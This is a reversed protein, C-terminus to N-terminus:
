AMGAITSTVEPDAFVVVRDGPRFTTDGRPVLLDRDRIVAGVVLDGDVRRDLERLSQGVLESEEDLEIEIVEARDRELTSLKELPREFGFRVIEEALEERPNVAVDIGIAEFVDIYEPRDVVAIVRDIGLRKALVSVLLNREDTEQAAVAVAAEDIHERELFEADSADHEMVLTDPLQEALERARAPNQEVLTGGLGREELLRATHYGIDTGGFIVIDDDPDPTAGADLAVALAQVSAPSGIVVARDGPEIVTEGGPILLQDGRFLGAVTLSEFQDTEAITNGTISSEPIEFEAALVLGGGFPEVDLAAPLGIIRVLQEATLLDSCVMFEVGFARSSREWTRLYEVSRVRSITFPDGLTKATGCAVLNTEDDDTCAIFMDAEDVRAPELASLSTGDGALTLVDLEYQLDDARQEDRDVVTVEHDDALAAAVGTGVTGAGVIVVRM